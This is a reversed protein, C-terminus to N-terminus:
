ERVRERDRERKRERERKRKKKERERERERELCCRSVGEVPCGRADPTPHLTHSTLHLHFLTGTIYSLRAQLTFATAGSLNGGCEREEERGGCEREEERGGVCTGAM